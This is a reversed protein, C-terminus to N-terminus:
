SRFTIEFLLSFVKDSYQDPMNGEHGLAAIAAMRGTIEKGDVQSDSIPNEAKSPIFFLALFLGITFGSRTSQWCCPWAYVFKDRLHLM